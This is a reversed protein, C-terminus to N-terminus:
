YAELDDSDESEYGAPVINYKSQLSVPKFPNAPLSKDRPKENNPFDRENKLFTASANDDRSGRSDKMPSTM